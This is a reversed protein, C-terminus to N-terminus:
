ASRGERIHQIDIGPSALQRSILIGRHCALPDGEACLLAIRHTKLGELSLQSKTEVYTSVAEGYQVAFLVLSKQLAVPEPYDPSALDENGNLPFPCSASASASGSTHSLAPSHGTRHTVEFGVFCHGGARRTM